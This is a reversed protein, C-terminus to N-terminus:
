IERKSWTVLTSTVALCAVAAKAEWMFGGTRCHWEFYTLLKADDELDNSCGVPGKACKM